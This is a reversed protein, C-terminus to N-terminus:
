SYTEVVTIGDTLACFSMMFCILLNMPFGAKVCKKFTAECM